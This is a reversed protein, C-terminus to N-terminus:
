ARQTEPPLGQVIPAEPLIPPETGPWLCMKALCAYGLMTPLYPDLPVSEALSELALWTLLLAALLSEPTHERRDRRWAVICGSWLAVCYLVMGIFGLSLWQDLYTEHANPVAWGQDLSIRDVQGPTWYAAYGVGLVPQREVDEFLESWLPARNSLSHTNETDNRGMMFAGQAAGLPDKGVAFVLAPLAVALCGVVVLARTSAQWQERAWRLLLVLLLVVLLVASLRSRTLWLLAVEAAVAPLLWRAWRPRRQVLTMACLMSVVLNMAQYNAEMVGMFRYEPDFPAFRHEHFIDVLLSLLAVTGTTLFGWLAMELVSAVRALTYAFLADALFVVLRKGTTAPAQSWAFSCVAWLVFGIVPWRLNAKWVGRRPFRWLLYVAVAAIIPVAIQRSVSGAFSEAANNAAEALGNTTTKPIGYPVSFWFCVGLIVACAIRVTRARRDAHAWSVREQWDAPPDARLRGAPAHSTVNSVTTSM